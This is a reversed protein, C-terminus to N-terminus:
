APCASAPERAIPRKDVVLPVQATTLVSEPRELVAMTSLHRNGASISIALREILERGGRWQKIQLRGPSPQTPREAPLAILWSTM